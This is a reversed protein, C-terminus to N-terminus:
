VMRRRGESPPSSSAGVSPPRFVMFIFAGVGASAAAAAAECSVSVSAIGFGSNVVPADGVAAVGTAAPGGAAALGGVVALGGAVPPRAVSFILGGVPAVGATPSVVGAASGGAAVAAPSFFGVRLILTGGAVAEPLGASGASSWDLDVSFILDGTGVPVAGAAM